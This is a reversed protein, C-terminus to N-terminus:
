YLSVTPYCATHRSLSPTPYLQSDTNKPSLDVPAVIPLEPTPGPTKPSLLSSSTITCHHQAVLNGLYPDLNGLSSPAHVLLHMFCISALHTSKNASDFSYNHNTTQSQCVSQNVSHSSHPVWQMCLLLAPIPHTFTSSPPLIFPLPAVSQVLFQFSISM